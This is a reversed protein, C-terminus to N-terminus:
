ISLMYFTLTKSKIEKKPLYHNYTILLINTKMTIIIMMMM